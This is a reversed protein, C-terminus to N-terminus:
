LFANVIVTILAGIIILGVPAIIKFYTSHVDVLKCYIPVDKIHERLDYIESMIAMLKMDSDMDKWAAGYKEIFKGNM